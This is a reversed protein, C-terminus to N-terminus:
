TGSMKSFGLLIDRLFGVIGVSVNDEYGDVFNIAVEEGILSPVEWDCGVAAM